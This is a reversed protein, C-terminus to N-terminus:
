LYLWHTNSCPQFYVRCPPPGGPISNQVGATHNGSSISPLKNLLTIYAKNRNSWGHSRPVVHYLEYGTSYSAIGAESQMANNM